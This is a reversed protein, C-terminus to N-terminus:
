WRRSPSPSPPCCTGPWLGHGEDEEVLQMKEIYMAAELLEKNSLTEKVLINRELAVAARLFEEDSSVGEKPPKDAM